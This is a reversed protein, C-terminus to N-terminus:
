FHYTTVPTYIVLSTDTAPVTQFLVCETSVASYSFGFSIFYYVFHFQVNRLTQYVLDCDITLQLLFLTPCFIHSCKVKNIFTNIWSYYKHQTVHFRNHTIYLIYQRVFLCVYVYGKFLFRLWCSQWDCCFRYCPRCWRKGRESIWGIRKFSFHPKM